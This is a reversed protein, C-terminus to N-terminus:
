GGCVFLSEPVGILSARCRISAQVPEETDTRPHYIIGRDQFEGVMGPQQYLHNALGAEIRERMRKEGELPAVYFRYLKALGAIAPALTQFRQILVSLSQERGPGYRGPWLLVKRGRSFAAPEYLHYGGSLHEKLHETMRQCFSRGTEGVYYVLEGEVTPVTWLYVGVKKGAESELLSPVGGGEIWSFPGVFEVLIAQGPM